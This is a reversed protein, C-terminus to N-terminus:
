VIKRTHILYYTGDHDLECCPIEDLPLVEYIAAQGGLLLEEIRDGERPTAAVGGFVYATVAIRYDRDSVATPVIGNYRDEALDKKSAIIATVSATSLTGRKLTVTVGFFRSEATRIRAFSDQARSSVFQRKEASPLRCGTLLVSVAALSVGLM